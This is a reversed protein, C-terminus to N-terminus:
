KENMKKRIDESVHELVESVLEPPLLQTFADVEAQCKALLKDAKPTQKKKEAPMHKEVCKKLKDTAKEADNPDADTLPAISLIIVAAIVAGVKTQWHYKNSM